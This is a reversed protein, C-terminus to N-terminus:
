GDAAGQLADDGDFLLGNVGVSGGMGVMGGGKAWPVSPMCGVECPMGGYVGPTMMDWGKVRGKGGMPRVMSEGVGGGMLGTEYGM